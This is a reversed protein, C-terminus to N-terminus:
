ADDKKGKEELWMLWRIWACTLGFGCVIGFAWSALDFSHMM